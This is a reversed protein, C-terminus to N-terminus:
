PYTASFTALPWPVLPYRARLLPLLGAPEVHITDDFIDIWKIADLEHAHSAQSWDQDRFDSANTIQYLFHFFEHYHADVWQHIQHVSIISGVEPVVNLEEIIERRICEDLSEGPDLRGGPLTWRKVQPGFSVVLLKTWEMIIGRCAIGYTM